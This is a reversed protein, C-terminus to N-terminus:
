FRVSLRANFGNESVGDGYQGTYAIGLTATASILVDLGAEVVAADEAIPAGTVTFADSGAFAQTVTPDIDGFAHRWGLAGRLTADVSGFAVEKALRVGLTTFTTDMTQSDGTLAAAGGEETYGDQHLSVYSLNAFPEFAIGAADIRYGLEGFAQVTGADYDASLSDTYGTFAVSRNTSIDQWTYALGTRLALPGWANGGYVGIHWNDSSGSSNRGSISFDTYSYGGAVGVRWGDGVLTDAGILFGGTSDSVGAANSNGDMDGWNGFATSWLAFREVPALAPAAKVPISLDAAVKVPSPAAYALAGSSTEVVNVVTGASAGVGGQAARLRDNLAGRILSSQEMFLSQTSAHVEGSLQDYAWQAEGASTLFLVSNYLALSAGTQPLTGLAASTAIQNPTVAVSTFADPSAVAIVVNVGTAFDEAQARLFLSDTTVAAFSGTVGGTAELITYSQGAVYSVEPDLAVLNLTAGNIAIQGTAAILDSTGDGALEVQYTSGTLFTVDGTVHITGISNGPSLTGGSAVTVAGTTGIGGLTAGDAVFVAGAISADAHSADGVVLKGAAVTVLGDFSSIGNLTLTADGQKTFSGTGTIAGAYVSAVDVTTTLIQNGLALTAGTATGSLAGITVPNAANAIDFVATDGNLALAGSSALAGNGALALTGALITTGGTYDSVGTLTQTTTSDVILAGTGTITGAFVAPGAGGLTLSGGDILVNAFGDGDGQLGAITVDVNDITLQTGTALIVLNNATAAADNALVLTGATVGIYGTFNNVGSLIQTGTGMQLVSGLLSLGGGGTISGAFDYTGSDAMLHISGALVLSVESGAVGNLGYIDTAVNNLELVATSASLNVAGTGLAGGDTVELTGGAVETGGSHSNAGSLTLTGEGQKVLAGVGTFVGTTGIDYGNSDIYGGGAALTISDADFLYIFYDESRTARLVGGNFTVNMTGDGGMLMGTALVGRGDTANGELTLTGTDTEFSTVVVASTTVLGGKEITLSGAGNLGVDIGAFSTSLESVVNGGDKSGVTLSAVGSTAGLSIGKFSIGDTTRIEIGGGSSVLYGDYDFTGTLTLTGSGAKNFDGEGSFSGAYTANTSQNVTFNTLGTTVVAGSATGSLSGFAVSAPTGPVGSIDLVATEGNLAVSGSSPLATAEAIALTGAEIVTGGTYSNTGSLTLTGAGDKVLAGSGTFVGDIGINFGNTDITGGGTGLTVSGTGFGYLFGETDARARLTGGDLNMTAVGGFVALGATELVGSGYTADGSINFVHRTSGNGDLYFTDEVEFTAGAEINVTNTAGNGDMSMSYTSYTVTDGATAGEPLGVTLTATAGNTGIGTGDAANASSRVALEGERVSVYSVSTLDGTLTLEASGTKTLQVYGSFGGAYTGDVSQAVTLVGYYDIVADTSTGSLNAITVNEGNTDLGLTGNVTVSSADALTTAKTVKLTGESIVVGGTYGLDTGLTLTASGTKTLTGTGTISGTYTGATAQNLTLDTAGADITASMAGSLNNLTTGSTLGSLDLTDNVTVRTAGALSAGGTLALTGESVLVSMGNGVDGATVTWTSTGAKELTGFGSAAITGHAGTFDVSANNSGALVLIDNGDAGTIAGTITGLDGSSDARMELVNTGGTFAIAAGNGSGQTGGIISGAAGDLIIGLNAGTIGAGGQPNAGTGSAGGTISSQVLITTAGTSGTADIGAGGIGGTFFGDTASGGTVSAKIVLTTDGSTGTLLIAAGGNAGIFDGAGAAGGTVTGEFIVSNDGTAGNLVFGSAGNGGQNSASGIGSGGNGGALAAGITLTNDGTPQYIVLGSGGNGGTAAWGYNGGTGGTIASVNAADITATTGTLGTIVAGFGGGGGGGGAGAFGAEGGNGGNGGTVSNTLDGILGVFGHAGGGGGGGSNNDGGSEGDNGGAGEWEGGGGGAGGGPSAAGGDGGFMGSGGGGGGTTQQADSGAAGDGGTATSSSSGGVGAGVWVSVGGAGGDGDAARAPALPALLAAVVLTGALSGLLAARRRGGPTSLNCSLILSSEGGIRHGLSM